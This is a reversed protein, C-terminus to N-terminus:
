IWSQMYPQLLNIALDCLGTLKDVDGRNEYMYAIQCLLAHKMDAPIAESYGAYYAVLVPAGYTGILLNGQQNYAWANGNRNDNAAAVYSVPPYPLRLVGCPDVKATLTILRQNISINCWNEVFKTASTIYSSILADDDPFDVIMHAKAEELTVAPNNSDYYTSQGFKIDIIDNM